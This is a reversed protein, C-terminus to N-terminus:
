RAVVPGRALPSAVAGQNAQPRGIVLSSGALDWLQDNVPPSPLPRPALWRDYLEGTVVETRKPLPGRLGITFADSGSWLVRAWQGPTPSLGTAASDLTVGTIPASSRFAIWLGAAGSHPRATLSLTGNAIQETVQPPAVRAPVAAPAVWLSQRLFPLSLRGIAGGDTRLVGRTWADPPLASARWARTAAPEIVYLPEVANPYRPTWPDHFRIYACLVVGVLALSAAPWLMAAPAPWPTRIDEGAVLPWLVLAALWAPFAGLFPLDLGQLLSHFLNGLWALTLASIVTLAIWAPARRDAGAASVVSAFAGALLPWAVVAGALPAAIQVAIGVVLAATLLGTWAGPLRAPRGFALAVLGGVVGLVLGPVDFGGFLSCAAGATIVLLGAAIRTRGRGVLAITATLGGLATALMMVEFLPFQALIPRYGTWGSAVGTARRLLELSTGCLAIVYISAAAGRAADGLSFAGLRVARAAGMLIMVAAGALVVWGVPTPYAVMFDGILNGYVVDPARRPLPGFALAAATPAVEGGLHQVAGLDLADPTSSPSHYDFQRGLFAYNMGPKGGARAISFDTGNPLYGYVFITLANSVPATATRRFLTVDGGNGPATEFMIARGGGGRTDMNLVYGVPGALQSRGFFARAGLLGEEEGDTIALLVDRVPPGQREILRVTELATAVGAADDAAGPSGPVSDYHAMLALSPATPDRGPLVGVVNDVIAGSLTSGDVGFSAAREVHPHLGLAVMRGVLYDRVKGDAMSGVPHPSSGMARIDTLARGASFRDLPARPPLPRPTVVGAYFIPGFAAALAVFTGLAKWM